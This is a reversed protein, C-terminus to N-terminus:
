QNESGGSNAIAQALKTIAVSLGSIAEIFEPPVSMMVTFAAAPADSKGSKAGQEKPAPKRPAAPPPAMDDDTEEHHVPRWPNDSM